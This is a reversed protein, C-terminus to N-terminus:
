SLFDFSYIGKRCENDNKFFEDAPITSYIKEDLNTCSQALISFIAIALIHIKHLTKM